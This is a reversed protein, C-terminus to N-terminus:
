EYQDDMDRRAMIQDRLNMYGTIRSVFSRMGNHTLYLSERDSNNKLPSALIEQVIETEFAEILDKFSPNTLLTEALTGRNILQEETM